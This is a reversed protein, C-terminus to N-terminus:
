IGHQLLLKPQPFEMEKNRRETGSSLDCVQVHDVRILAAADHARQLQHEVGNLVADNAGDVPGAVGTRGDGLLINHLHQVDALRVENIGEEHGASGEERGERREHIRGEDLALRVVNHISDVHEPCGVLGDRHDASGEVIQDLVLIRCPQVLIALGPHGDLVKNIYRLAALDLNM